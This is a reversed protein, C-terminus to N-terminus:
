ANSAGILSTDRKIDSHTAYNAKVQTHTSFFVKMDSHTVAVATIGAAPPKTETVTAEFRVADTWTSDDLETLEPVHCFLIRPMRQGPPTRILLVPLQSREITGLAAQLMDADASNAVKIRLPM